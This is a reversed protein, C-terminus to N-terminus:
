GGHTLSVGAKGECPSVSPDMTNTDFFLPQGRALTDFGTEHIVTEVLSFGHGPILSCNGLM